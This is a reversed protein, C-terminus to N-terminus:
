KNMEKQDKKFCAECLVEDLEDTVNLYLHVKQNSLFLECSDCRISEDKLLLLTVWREGM